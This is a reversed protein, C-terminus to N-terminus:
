ARGPGITLFSVAYLEPQFPEIYPLGTWLVQLLDTQTKEELGSAFRPNEPDLLLNEVSEFVIRLPATQTALVRKKAM